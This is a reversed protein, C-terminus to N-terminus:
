GVLTFKTRDTIQTLIALIRRNRIMTDYMSINEERKVRLINSNVKNLSDLSGFREFFQDDIDTM